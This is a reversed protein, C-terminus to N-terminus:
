SIPRRAQDPLRLLTLCALLALGAAVMGTAIRDADDAMRVLGFGSLAAGVAFVAMAAVPPLDPTRRRVVLYATAAVALIGGVAVGAFAATGISLAGAVILMPLGCCVGCAAGFSTM